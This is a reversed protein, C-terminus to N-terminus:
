TDLIRDALGYAVSESANMYNDSEIDKEVKEREQHCNKSLIEILEEKKRSIYNAIIRIDSEKGEFGTTPQHIMCESHPFMYRKGRAGASFIVAGMSAAEGCCITAVEPKIHNMMDIISLGASISGGPSDIYMEIPDDSLSALYLLEANIVAAHESTIPGQLMVNRQGLLESFIDECYEGSTNRVMPINRM